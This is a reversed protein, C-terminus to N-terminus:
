KIEGKKYTIKDYIKIDKYGLTYSFHAVAPVVLLILFMVAFGSFSVDGLTKSGMCLNLIKFFIANVAKYYGVTTSPKVFRLVVMVLFLIIDPLMAMIGIKLGRFKDEDKHGCKVANFDKNGVTYLKHYVFAVLLVLSLLTLVSFDVIKGARSPVDTKLIVYGKDKYEKAEYKEAIKDDGDAFYHTYKEVTKNNEDRVYATYGIKFLTRNLPSISIILVACMFTVVLLNLFLSFSIKIDNKM